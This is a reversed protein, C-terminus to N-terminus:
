TVTRRTEMMRRHDWTPKIRNLRASLVIHRGPPHLEYDGDRYNRRSWDIWRKRLVLRHLEEHITM